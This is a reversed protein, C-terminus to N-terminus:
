QEMQGVVKAMNAFKCHVAAKNFKGGFGIWTVGPQRDMIERDLYMILIYQEQIEYIILRSILGGFFGVM